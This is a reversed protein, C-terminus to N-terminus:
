ACALTTKSPACASPPTAPTTATPLPNSPSAAGAPRSVSRCVPNMLRLLPSLPPSLVMKYMPVSGYTIAVFGVIVSFVYNRREILTQTQICARALMCSRGIRRSTDRMCKTWALYMAKGHRQRLTSGDELLRSPRMAPERYGHWHDRVRRVHGPSSHAYRNSDYHRPSLCQRHNAFSQCLFTQHLSSPMSTEGRSVATKPRRALAQIKESCARSPSKSM